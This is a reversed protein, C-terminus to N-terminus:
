NAYRSHGFLQKRIELAWQRLQRRQGVGEECVALLQAATVSGEQLHGGDLQVQGVVQYQVRDLVNSLQVGDLYHIEIALNVELAFQGLLHALHALQLLEADVGIRTLQIGYLPVSLNGVGPAACTLQTYGRGDDVDDDDNFVFLVDLVNM